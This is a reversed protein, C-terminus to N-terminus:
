AEPKALSDAKSDDAEAAAPIVGEEESSAPINEVAPPEEHEAAFQSPLEDQEPLATLEEQFVYQGALYVGGSIVALICALGLGLKWMTEGGQWQNQNWAQTQHEFAVQRVSFGLLFSNRSSTIM